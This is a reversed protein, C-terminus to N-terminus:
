PRSRLHHPPTHTQDQDPRAESPGASNGPDTSILDRAAAHRIVTQRTESVFRAVDARQVATVNM